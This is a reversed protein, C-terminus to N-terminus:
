KRKIKWGLLFVFALTLVGVAFDLTFKNQANVFSDSFNGFAFRTLLGGLFILFTKGPKKKIDENYISVVFWFVFFLGFFESIAFATGTLALFIFGNLIITSTQKTIKKM